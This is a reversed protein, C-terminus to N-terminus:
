LSANRLRTSEAPRALPRSLVSISCHRERRRVRAGINECLVTVDKTGGIIAVFWNTARQRLRLSPARISTAASIVRTM